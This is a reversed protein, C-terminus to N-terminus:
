LYIVRGESHVSNDDLSRYCFQIRGQKESQQIELQLRMEPLVVSKFKLNEIRKFSGAQPLLRNILSIAWHVQVVGPLVPNGPFHGKFWDLNAPVTMELRVWAVEREVSLMQPWQAVDLAQNLSFALQESEPLM